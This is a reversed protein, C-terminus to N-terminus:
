PRTRPVPLFTAIIQAENNNTNTIAIQHCKPYTTHYLVPPSIRQFSYFAQITDGRFPLHIVVINGHLTDLAPSKCLFLTPSNNFFHALFTYGPKLDYRVLPIRDLFKPFIGFILTKVNKKHKHEVTQSAPFIFGREYHFPKGLLSDSNEANHFSFLFKFRM